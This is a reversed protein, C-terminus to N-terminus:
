SVEEMYRAYAAATALREASWTQGCRACRWAAGATLADGTITHDPTHCLPCTPSPSFEANQTREAGVEPTKM